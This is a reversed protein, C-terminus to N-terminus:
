LLANLMAATAAVDHVRLIAAGKTVAKREADLTAELCNDPTLGLPEYIMRKRSLAALIPRGFVELTDLNELLELNQEVDKSFGFGPDLIWERIGNAEAKEAFATFFAREAEMIGDPYNGPAAAPGCNHMAIYPVGLEGALPLMHPDGKGATVDNVILPRAGADALLGHAKLVIESRWSDISVATGPFEDTMMRVAPELRSWETAADVATSGPRTSCAGLDIIDAGCRLQESIKARLSAADPRGGAALMRSGAYFSDDTLNVIAMISVKGVM